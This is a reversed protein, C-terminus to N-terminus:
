RSTEKRPGRLRAVFQPNARQVDAYIRLGFEIWERMLRCYHRTPALADGHRVHSEHYCGGACLHRAWCSGCYVDRRAAAQELFASLVPVDIGTGLSGIPVLSSGVFRHCLHLDGDADAAVTGIGAGCPLRRHTGQALAALLQHLNTFGPNRGASAEDLYQRGLAHLDEFVTKLEDESLAHPMAANATVPAFGVEPFGIDDRLHRFIGVVDTTGGALTVRAGVPRSRYRALLRRVKPAVIDYSGRGGLTPRNRDHVARPGDMSITLGFRHSDFWSVLEETLLTANTTLSFDIEVGHAVAKEASSAVVERILEMHTLPEGGFFVVNVRSRVGAHALLFDLARGATAADMRRAAAPAAVDEKYCYGCRLNCATSVNLALTTLPSGPGAHPLMDARVSWPQAPRSRRGLLGLRALEGATQRLTHTDFRGELADWGGGAVAAAAVEDLEFLASRGVHFLYHRHQHTFCHVEAADLTLDPVARDSRHPLAPAAARPSQSM